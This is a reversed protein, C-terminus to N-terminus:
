EPLPGLIDVNYRAATEMLLTMDPPGALPEVTSLDAVFNIFNGPMALLLSRSPM